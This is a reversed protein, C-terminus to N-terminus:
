YALTPTQGTWQPRELEDLMFAALDSRAIIAGGPPALRPSVRFGGPRRPEDTLKTPRVITWDLEAERIQAEMRIMDDYARQIFVPRLIWRYFWDFSPDDHEVGGSTVAILRRLGLDQMAGILNRGGESYLRIEGFGPWGSLGLASLVAETGSLAKALSGRDTVDAARVELQPHRTDVAEPRRALAVVRHGRELAQRVVEKGTGGTSGIVAIQM